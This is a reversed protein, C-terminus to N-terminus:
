SLLLKPMLYRHLKPKKKKKKKKKLIQHMQKLSNYFFFDLIGHVVLRDLVYAIIILKVVNHLM